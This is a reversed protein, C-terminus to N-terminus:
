ARPAVVWDIRAAYGVVDLQLTEARRDYRSREGSQTLWGHNRIRIALVIVLGKNRDGIRAHVQEAVVPPIGQYPRAQYVDIERHELVVVYRSHRFGEVNLKPGLEKVDQIM